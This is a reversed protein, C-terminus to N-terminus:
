NFKKFDFFQLRALAVGSAGNAVGTVDVGALALAFDANGAEFAVFALGVVIAEPRIAAFTSNQPFNWFKRKWLIGRKGLLQALTHGLSRRIHKGVWYGPRFTHANCASHTSSDDTDPSDVKHIRRSQPRNLAKRHVFTFMQINQISVNQSYSVQIQNTLISWLHWESGWM